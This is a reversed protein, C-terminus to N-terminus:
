IITGPAEKLPRESSNSIAIKDYSASMLGDPPLRRKLDVHGYRCLLTAALPRQWDRLVPPIVIHLPFRHLSAEPIQLQHGDSPHGHGSNM